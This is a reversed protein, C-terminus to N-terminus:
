DTYDEALSDWDLARIEAEVKPDIPFAFEDQFWILVLWSGFEEPNRVPENSKFRGICVVAPLASPTDFPYPSKRDCEYPTETPPILHIPGFPYDNERCGAVAGALIRKNLETTPFGMVLGEYIYRQRLEMLHLRRGLPMEIEGTAKM